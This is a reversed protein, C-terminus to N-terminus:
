KGKKNNKNKSGKKRGGVETTNGLARQRQKYLACSRKITAFENKPVNALTTSFLGAPLYLSHFKEMCTLTNDSARVGHTLCILVNQYRNRGRKEFDCIQCRKKNKHFLDNYKLLAEITCERKSPSPIGRTGEMAEEEIRLIRPVVMIQEQSGELRVDTQEVEWKRDPSMLTSAIEQMFDARSLASGTSGETNRWRMKFLLSANTVAM